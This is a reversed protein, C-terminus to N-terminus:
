EEGPAAGGDREDRRQAQSDEIQQELAAEIPAHREQGSSQQCEVWEQDTVRSEEVRVCQHRGKAQERQRGREAPHLFRAAGHPGDERADKGPQGEQGLDRGQDQDGADQEELGDGDDGAFGWGEIELRWDGIELRGGRIEIRLGVGGGAMARRDDIM